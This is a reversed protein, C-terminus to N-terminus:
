TLSSFDTEQLEKAILSSIRDWVPHVNCSKTRTCFSEDVLCPNIVIPGQTIEVVEKLSIEKPKRALIFGGQAGQLSRVVGAKALKQIIKALFARPIDAKDAIVSVTFCQEPYKSLYQVCRIAHDTERTIKM